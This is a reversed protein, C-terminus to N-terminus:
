YKAIGSLAQGTLSHLSLTIKEAQLTLVSSTSVIRQTNVNM